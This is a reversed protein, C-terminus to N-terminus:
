KQLEKYKWLEEKFLKELDSIRKDFDCLFCQMLQVDVGHQCHRPSYPIYKVEHCGSM